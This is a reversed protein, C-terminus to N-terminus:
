LVEISERKAARGLAKDLTALALNRRQALELYAADYASLGHQAALRSTRGSAHRQTEGDLEIALASFDALAFLRAESTIRTRRQAVLLSNAIEIPWFLPAVAGTESARGLLAVAHPLFEDPLTGAMAVSCDLVFLPTLASGREEM